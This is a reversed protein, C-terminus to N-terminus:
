NSRRQIRGKVQFLALVKSTDIDIDDYATNACKLVWVNKDPGRRIYKFLLLEKTVIVFPEGFPIVDFDHLQKLPILDGPYFDKIMSDGRVSLAFKCDSFEPIVMYEVVNIPEDWFRVPATPNADAAVDLVAIRHQEIQKAPKNRREYIAQPENLTSFENEFFSEGFKEKVLRRFDSELQEKRLHHNLNQRTMGLIEAIEGMSKDSKRFLERLSLGENTKEM